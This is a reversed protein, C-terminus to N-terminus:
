EQKAPALKPLQIHLPLGLEEEMSLARLACKTLILNILSIRITSPIQKKKWSKLSNKITEQDAQLLIVGEFALKANGPEYDITHSFSIKLIETDKLMDLKDKAVENFEINNSIKKTPEQKQSREASIKTFNFGLVKM